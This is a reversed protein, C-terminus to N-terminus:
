VQRHGARACTLQLKSQSTATSHKYWEQAALASMKITRGASMSAQICDQHAICLMGKSQKSITALHVLQPTGTSKTQKHSCTGRGLWPMDHQDSTHDGACSVEACQTGAYGRTVGLRDALCKRRGTQLMAEDCCEWLNLVGSTRLGLEACASSLLMLFCCHM